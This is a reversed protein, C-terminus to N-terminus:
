QASPCMHLAAGQRRKKETLRPLTHFERIDFTQVGCRRTRRAGRFCLPSLAGCELPRIRGARQVAVSLQEVGILTPLDAAMARDTPGPSFPREGRREQVPAQNSAHLHRTMTHDAGRRVNFAVRRAQSTAAIATEPQVDSLAAFSM